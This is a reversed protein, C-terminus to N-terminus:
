RYIFLYLLHLFLDILTVNYMETRVLIHFTAQIYSHLLVNYLLLEIEASLREILVLNFDFMGFM